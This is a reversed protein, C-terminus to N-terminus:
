PAFEDTKTFGEPVSLKFSDPKAPFDLNLESLTLRNGFKRGDPGVFAWEIRRPLADRISFFYWTDFGGGFKLYLEYCEEDGVAAKGRTESKEARQEYEFPDPNVFMTVLYSLFEMQMSGFVAIDIDAHVRKAKFDFLYFLDGDAGAVLREPEDVDPKRVVADLRFKEAFMSRYGSLLVTGTVKSGKEDDSLPERLFAYRVVRAGKLAAEARRLIEEPGPLAVSEGGSGLRLMSSVISIWFFANM